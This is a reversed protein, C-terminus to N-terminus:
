VSGGGFVTFRLTSEGSTLSEGPEAGLEELEGLVLGELEGLLNLLTLDNVVPYLFRDPGFLGLGSV